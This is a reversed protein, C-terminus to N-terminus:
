FPLDRRGQVGRLGDWIGAWSARIPKWQRKLVTRVPFAHRLVIKWGVKNFGQWGHKQTFLFTNRVMYYALQHSRSSLSHAGHHLARAGPVVVIHWGRQLVRVCFDVDEGYHFFREDLLGLEDFVATRVLFCAGAVFETEREQIPPTPDRLLSWWHFRAGSSQHRGQLDYIVPAIIAARPHSAAYAMMVELSGEGLVCDNNMILIFEPRPTLKLAFQIGLNNGGAYGLNMPSRLIKVTPSPDMAAGSLQEMDKALSSENDVVVVDSSPAAHQVSRVAKVTSEWDKWNVIIACVGLM